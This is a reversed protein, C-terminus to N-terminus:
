STLNYKTRGSYNCRVKEPDPLTDLDRYCLAITRLMQNAYFIITRSINDRGLEDIETLELEENDSATTKNPNRVVVHRTFRKSLIESAGKLFLRYKGNQLKILVGSAKRSSSFPIVEVVDAKERIEHYSSWNLEKALGLLAVETKSGVFMLEGSEPDKDEFATSNIAIAQNFLAQLSQPMVKNLEAQDVSFDDGHKRSTPMDKANTRASNEELRRVFKAHIGVSGAVVSMQNQTLTGTKDTCVVSVNAMTECSALLRVLLNEKTMRKTAFALALTVAL